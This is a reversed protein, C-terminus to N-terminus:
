SDHHVSTCDLHNNVMVSEPRAPNTSCQRMWTPGRRTESDTAAAKFTMQGHEKTNFCGFWRWMELHAPSDTISVFGLLLCHHPQSPSLSGRLYKLSEAKWLLGRYEERANIQWERRLGLKGWLAWLWQDKHGVTDVTDPKKGEAHNRNELKNRIFSVEASYKQRWQFGPVCVKWSSVYSRICKKTEFIM